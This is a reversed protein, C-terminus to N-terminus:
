QIAQGWSQDKSMLKEVGAAANVNLGSEDSTKLETWVKQAHEALQTFQTKEDVNKLEESKAWMAENMSQMAANVAWQNDKLADLEDKSWLNNEGNWTGLKENSFDFQMAPKESQEDLVILGLTALTAWGRQGKMTEKGRNVKTILPFVLLDTYCSGRHDDKKTACNITGGIGAIGAATAGIIAPIATQGSLATIAGIVAHASPLSSAAFVLTAAMYLTSKWKTRSEILLVKLTNKKKM